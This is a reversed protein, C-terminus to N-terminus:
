FAAYMFGGNGGASAFGFLIVYIIVFYAVWRIVINKERIISLLDKQNERLIDYCLVIVFSVTAVIIGIDSILSCDYLYDLCPKLNAFDFCTFTNKFCIYGNSVKPVADFYGAFVILIFTRAIQFFTYAKNDKKIGLLGKIKEFGPTAFDSVVIILGNYLGWFIYHLASGHWLGVLLFVLLNGIGAVVSRGFHKGFRKCLKENLKMMGPLLAFPYFVYDRLFSGLSIHWRRWFQAISTSFYPQKFNENMKVGFLGSIAMVMDIGGSFDAYQEIAFLLATFLLFSGPLDSVNERLFVENVCPALVNALAYKKIAGFAFLLACSKFQEFSLRSRGYLSQNVYDFRNIPGQLIQPFWSLYLAIKCLDKQPAYKEGYVDLLYSIAMFTYFSIGLPLIITSNKLPLVYKVAALLGLNFFLTAWLVARKKKLTGKKISQKEEKSIDSQKRLSKGELTIRDISLSAAWVSVVSALLFIIRWKAIAVYFVLSAVLRIIWQHEEHKKGFYEHLILTVAVFLIFAVSYLEMRYM